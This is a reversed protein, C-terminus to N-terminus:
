GNLVGVPRNISLSNGHQARYAEEFEEVTGCYPLIAEAGGPHANLWSTLDYVDGEFGVLCSDSSDHELLDERTFEELDASSTCGVIFVIILMFLIKKM